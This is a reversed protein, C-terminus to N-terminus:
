ALFVPPPRQFLDSHSLAPHPSGISLTTPVFPLSLPAICGVFIIPLLELNLTSTRSRPTLGARRTPSSANSDALQSAAFLKMVPTAYARAHEIGSQARALSALTIAAVAVWIWAGKPRNGTMIAENAM